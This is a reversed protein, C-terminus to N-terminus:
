LKKALLWGSIYSLFMILIIELDTKEEFIANSLEYAYVYIQKGITHFLMMVLGFGTIFICKDFNPALITIWDSYPQPTYTQDTYIYFALMGPYGFLIIDNIVLLIDKIEDYGM